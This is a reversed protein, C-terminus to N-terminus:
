GGETGNVGAIATASASGSVSSPFGPSPFAYDVSASVTVTVTEGDVTVSGSFGSASLIGQARSTAAAPDVVGGSRLVERDGQAGARAASAAVAHADRRANWQQTASLLAWGGIMLFTIFIVAMPMVSGRDRDSRDDTREVM